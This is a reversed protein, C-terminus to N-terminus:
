IECVFGDITVVFRVVQGSELTVTIVDGDDDDSFGDLWLAYAELMYSMEGGFKGPSAIRYM